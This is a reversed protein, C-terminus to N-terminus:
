LQGKREGTIDLKNNDGYLWKALQDILAAEDQRAPGKMACEWITAIRWGNSSLAKNSSDDNRRNNEIKTQWFVTRTAPMKFLNCDHGHWFCGNVFIVAHFKPLVIDPKGPLRKDHLRYRFGRGHLCKRILLEPRTNKSRIGTMMRSRVEPSVVDTM